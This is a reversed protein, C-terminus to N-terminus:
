AQLSRLLLILLVIDYHYLSLSRLLVNRLEKKYLNTNKLLLKM